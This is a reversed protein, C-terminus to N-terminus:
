YTAPKALDRDILLQNIDTGDQYVTALWRGFKGQKDKHTNLVVQKGEIRQSLFGKTLMGQPREPGRTEPANLGFLRFRMASHVGFGLDVTCDITDGDVVRTVMAEYVYPNAQM